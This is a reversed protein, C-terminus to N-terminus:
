EGNAKLAQVEVAVIERRLRAAGSDAPSLALLTDLQREAAGFRGAGAWLRALVYRADVSEPWMRIARTAEHQAHANEGVAALALSRRDALIGLFACAHRDRQLVVRPLDQEAHPRLM